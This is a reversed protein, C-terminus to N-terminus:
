ERELGLYVEFIYSTFKNVLLMALAKHETDKKFDNHFINHMESAIAQNTANISLNRRATTMLMAMSEKATKPTKDDAIM